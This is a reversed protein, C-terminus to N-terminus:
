YDPVEKNYKVKMIIFCNCSQCKKYTYRKDDDMKLWECQVRYREVRTHHMNFITSKDGMAPTDVANLLEMMVDRTNIINETKIKMEWLERALTYVRDEATRTEKRMEDIWNTTDGQAKM